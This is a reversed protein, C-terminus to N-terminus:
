SVTSEDAALADCRRIPIGQFSMVPIGGVNEWSLTSQKTANAVQRRLFTRVGRSMYFAARGMNMNPILDIAQFMLDALDAGTAADKVLASWDINAVRVCYRWDKVVLGMFWQYFTRYAEMRGTNSGDSADELTVQGKDVVNLGAQSGKPVIGFVTMPSWVVLWISRNDSGSGGGSIINDGSEASLSNYRPALGTFEEPAADADGLFLTEAAEQMMGEIHPRDETLRFQAPDGSLDALTKDVEAYAAMEGVSDRVQATRSKTPTVGGYLKRWTPTPIGTRVTSKHGDPLNGEQFTIDQLIDNTENLIEAVAAIQGNPDQRSALDLLTPNNASLTAM